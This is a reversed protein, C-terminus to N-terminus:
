IRGGSGILEKLEAVCIKAVAAIPIALVVGWFGMLEGMAMVAFIVTLPNLKLTGRMVLPKILNGEIVVNILFYATCVKPIISLDGSKVYGIFAPPIVAVLAGIFPVITAFGAFMGNLLPFEVDFLYLAVSCLIGVLLCDFLMALVFRELAVNIRRGLESLASSTNLPFVKLLSRRFQEKYLLMFFVLIPSLILNFLAFLLGKVREYGSGSVEIALRNLSDDLRASIWDLDGKSAYHLLEERWAAFLTRTEQVYLPLAATLSDLQHGLYPIIVLSAFLGAGALLGYLLVIAVFRTFGRKELYRLVPNLLYALVLSTLVASLTHRLYFGSLLFAAFLGALLYYIGANEKKIIM